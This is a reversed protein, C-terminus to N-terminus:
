PRENGCSGRSFLVGQVVVACPTRVLPKNQDCNKWCLKHFIIFVLSVPFGDCDWTNFKDATKQHMYKGLTKYPKAMITDEGASYFLCSSVIGSDEQSGVTGKLAEPFSCLVLSSPTTDYRCRHIDLISLEYSWRDSAHVNYAKYFFAVSYKKRSGSLPRNATDM